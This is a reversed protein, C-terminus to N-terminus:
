RYQTRLHRQNTQVPDCDILALSLQSNETRAQDIAARARSEIAPRSFPHTLSDRTAMRIISRLEHEVRHFILMLVYLVATQLASNLLLSDSRGGKGYDIYALAFSICIILATGAHKGGRKTALWIPLVYAMRTGTSFGFIGDLLVLSASFVLNSFIARKVVSDRYAGASLSILACVRSM